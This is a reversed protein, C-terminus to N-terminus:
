KGCVLHPSPGALRWPQSGGSGSRGVIETEMGRTAGLWRIEVDQEQLFGAVALGPFIHGGTGGGAILIKRRM